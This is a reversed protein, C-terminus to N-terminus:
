ETTILDAHLRGSKKLHRLIDIVDATPVKLQNLAEVLQQIKMPSVRGQPDEIAAFGIGPPTAEEPVPPAAPDPPGIRVSLNKHSFVVPSIDVDGTAVIVGTKSNVVIRAETRANDIPLSMVTALFQMQKRRYVEPIRVEVVTASLANATDRGDTEASLDANIKSAVESANHFSSHDPDILLRFADDNIIQPIFDAMLRAGSNIKGSTSQKDEISIPGSALAVARESKVQESSLPSPMLRGGALSTAPGFSTVFCDITQGRYIGGKPVTAEIMVLAINKGGKLEAADNVPNANLRLFGGMARITPLYKDGDGTGKLGTVLGMGVLKHQEQGLVSCINEIRPGALAPSIACALLLSLLSLQCSVVSLNRSTTRRWRRLLSNM